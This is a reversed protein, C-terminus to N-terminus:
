AKWYARYSHHTIRKEEPPLQMYDGYVGTLFRHYGSPIFYKRGEFDAETQERYDEAFFLEKAGWAGGWNAGYIGKAGKNEPSLFIREMKNLLLKYPIVRLVIKGIFVIVKKVFARDPNHGMHKLDLINKYKKVKRFIKLCEDRDDPADDIPFIDVNVGMAHKEDSEILITDNRVAKAFSYIYSDCNKHTLIKVKGSASEFSSILKEYQDRKLGIDIDDDWPIYGGHRIAGILTGGILFYEIGNERCFADIEDMINLQLQKIDEASIRDKESWKM